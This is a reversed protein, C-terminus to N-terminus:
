DELVSKGGYVNGVLIRAKGTVEANGAQNVTRGTIAVKVNVVNGVHGRAEQGLKLGDANNSVDIGSDNRGLGGPLVAPVVDEKSGSTNPKALTGDAVKVMKSDMASSTELREGPKRLVLERGTVPVAVPLVIIREIDEILRNVETMMDEFRKKDYVAWVAKKFFGTQWQRLHAPRGLENRPERIRHQTDLEQGSDSNEFGKTQYSKSSHQIDEFVHKLERLLSRVLRVEKDTRAPRLSRFRPDEHVGIATGWRELRLKAVELRLKYREYDDGFARTLRIYEFCGLCNKFLGAVSLAGAIVGFVEAM